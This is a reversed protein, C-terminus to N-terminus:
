WEHHAMVDRALAERDGDQDIRVLDTLRLLEDAPVGAPTRPGDASDSDSDSDSGPGSAPDSDSGLDAEPAPDQTPDPPSSQGTGPAADPVPTAPSALEAYFDPAIERRTLAAESPGALESELLVVDGSEECTTSAIECGSRLPDPPGGLFAGTPASTLVLRRGSGDEYTIAFAHGAETVQTGVPEWAPDDLVAIAHPYAAYTAETARLTREHVQAGIVAEAVARLLLLGVLVCVVVWTRRERTVALVLAVVSATLAAAVATGTSWPVAPALHDTVVTQVWAAVATATLIGAVTAPRALGSSRLLATLLTLGAALLVISGTAFALGRGIGGSGPFLADLSWSLAASALAIGVAYPVGFLFLVLARTTRSPDTRM